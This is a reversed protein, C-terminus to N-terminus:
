NDCVDGLGDADGDAQDPNPVSPCNDASITVRPVLILDTSLNSANWVGIAVVNPGDVLFPLAASTVNNPM